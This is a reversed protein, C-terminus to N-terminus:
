LEDNYPLLTITGGNGCSLEVALAPPGRWLLKTVEHVLLGLPGLVAAVILSHAAPVGARDGDLFVHRGAFLNIAWVHVLWSASTLPRSFLTMVGDLRPFFQPNFGGKLGDALSGPLLISFTDPSWSNALLLGYGLALPLYPWRSRMFTRVPQALLGVAAIMMAFVALHYATLGAVVASVVEPGLFGSGSSTSTSLVASVAYPVILAGRRRHGLVLSQHAGVTGLPSLAVM